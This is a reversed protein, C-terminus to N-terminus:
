RAPSAGCGSLARQAAPGPSHSPTSKSSRNRRRLPRRAFPLSPPRPRGARRREPRDSSCTAPSPQRAESGLWARDPDPAGPRRSCSGPASKPRTPGTTSFAARQMTTRRTALGQNRAPNRGADSQGPAARRAHRRAHRFRRRQGRRAAAPRHRRDLAADHRRDQARARRHADTTAFIQDAQEDLMLHYDRFHPGRCTGTSIRPRSTSRSATPSCEM